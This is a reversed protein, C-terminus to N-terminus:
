LFYCFTVLKSVKKWFHPTPKAVLYARQLALEQEKTWGHVTGNSEECEDRKRKPSVAVVRCEGDSEEKAGREGIAAQLGLVVKRTNRKSKAVFDEAEETDSLEEKYCIDGGTKSIRQSRRLSQFGVVANNTTRSERSGSSLDGRNNSGNASGGSKKSDQVSLRSSRRLIVSGKSGSSLIAIYRSGDLSKSSKKAHNSRPEPSKPAEPEPSNKKRHSLRSSRRLTSPPEQDPTNNHLFRPSRRRPTSPVVTNVASDRKPMKEFLHHDTPM